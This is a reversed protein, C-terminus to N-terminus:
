SAAAPSQPTCSPRSASQAPPRLDSCLPKPSTPVPCHTCSVVCRPPRAVNCYSVICAPQAPLRLRAASRPAVTTPLCPLLLERHLWASTTPPQMGGALGTATETSQKAEVDGPKRGQAGMIHGQTAAPSAMSSALKACVAARREGASRTGRSRSQEKSKAGHMQGAKTIRKHLRHWPRRWSQACWRWRRWGAGSLPAPRSRHAQNTSENSALPTIDRECTANKGFPKSSGSHDGGSRRSRCHCRGAAIARDDHSAVDGGGGGGARCLLRQCRCFAQTVLRGGPSAHLVARLVAHLVARLVCCAGNPLLPLGNPHSSQPAADVHRRAM